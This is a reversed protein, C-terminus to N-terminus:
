EYSGPMLPMKGRAELFFAKRRSMATLVTPLLLSVALLQIM